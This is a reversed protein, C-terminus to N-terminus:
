EEGGEKPKHEEMYSKVSMKLSGIESPNDEASELRRSVYKLAKYFDKQMKEREGEKRKKGTWQIFLSVGAIIALILGIYFMWNASSTRKEADEYRFWFSKELNAKVAESDELRQGLQSYAIRVDAVKIEEEKITKPYANFMLTISEGRELEDCFFSHGERTVTIDAGTPFITHEFSNDDILADAELIDIRMDKVENEGPDITVKTRIEEGFYASSGDYDYTSDSEYNIKAFAPMACVSIAIAVSFLFVILLTSRKKKM